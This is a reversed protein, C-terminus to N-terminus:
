RSTLSFQACLGIERGTDEARAHRSCNRRQGLEGRKSAQGCNHSTRADLRGGSVIQPYFAVFFSIELFVKAGEQTQAPRGYFV